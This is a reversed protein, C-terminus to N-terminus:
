TRSCSRPTRAARAPHARRAAGRRADRRALGRPDLRRRARRPSTPERLPRLARRDHERYGPERRGRWWLRLPLWPLALAGCCRRLARADADRRTACCAAPPRSRTTRAVARARQRRPRRAHPGARPLAPSRQTPPPSSRSPRRASRPRSIRSARTSASWSRRTARSRRRARAADAAAARHRQDRRARAARQASAGRRQGLAAAGRIGGARFARHLARWHAEPWLKDERSTAHFALAYPGAPMIPTAPRRRSAALAAPGRVAYGSRPRPSRARRTSSTSTARSRTTCTTSGADRAARPRERPRLWPPTGRAMRAVLAGKVQEQLDLIADYRQARLARAFHASSAGRRAGRLPARRWRRFAVPIVHRIRPDLACSRRSPKRPSGTSRPRRPTRARRRSVLALAHVIDGLSSPRVVLVSRESARRSRQERCVVYFPAIRPVPAASRACQADVQRAHGFRKGQREDHDGAVGGELERRAERRRRERRLRDHDIRAAAIIGYRDRLAGARAHDLMRPLAVARLLIEGHRLRACSQTSHTSASSRTDGSSARPSGRRQERAARRPRPTRSRAGCGSGRGSARARRLSDPSSRAGTRGGAHASTRRDRARSPRRRRAPRAGQAAIEQVRGGFRDVGVDRLLVAVRRQLGLRHVRAPSVRSRAPAHRQRGGRAEEAEVDHLSPKRSPAAPKACMAIPANALKRLYALSRASSRSPCPSVSICTSTVPAAPKMPMCVARASSACRRARSRRRCSRDTSRRRRELFRADGRECPVGPKANSRMSRASARLSRAVTERRRAERM